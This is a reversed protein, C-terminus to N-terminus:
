AGINGLLVQTKIVGPAVERDYHHGDSHLKKINDVPVKLFKHVQRNDVLKAGMRTMVKELAGSIEGWSRNKSIDEQLIKKLWTRGEDTDNHFVLRIKRGWDTDKYIVGAVIHGNKRVLKWMGPTRVLDVLDAGMLGGIGKYTQHLLYWVEHKSSEKSSPTKLTLFREALFQKYSM